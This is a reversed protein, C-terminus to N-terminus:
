LQFSEKIALVKLGGVIRHSPNANLRSVDLPDLEVILDTAFGKSDKTIARAELSDNHAILIGRMLAPTMVKVGPAAKTGDPALLADSFKSGLQLLEKTILSLTRPTAIDLFTADPQGSANVQYTTILSEISVRGSQDILYTSIGDFLLLNRQSADFATLGPPAECDPLTLGLRPKNPNATDCIQADRAAVQAAWTWPPTPSTGTGMVCSYPSNRATGYTTLAGQTGAKAAIVMGPQKVLPGWRRDMENELILMNAADTIGTVITDYVQEDLATVALNADPNTAGSAPQTVTVTIGPPLSEVDISVENGHTGKHRASVTITGTSVASTMSLLPTGAVATNLNGAAVAATTGSAVPVTIRKDGIRIRLSGTATATGAFAFSGSAAVGGSAENLAMAFVNAVTNVKKFKRCIDALMSNANFLADGTTQSFIPYIQGEVATAGSSSKIGLLLVRHPAGAQIGLANTPDIEVYTGPVRWSSPMLTFSISM